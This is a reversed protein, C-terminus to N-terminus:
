LIAKLHIDIYETSLICGEAVTINPTLRPPQLPNALSPTDTLLNHHLSAARTNTSVLSM